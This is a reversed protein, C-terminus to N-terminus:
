GPILCYTLHGDVEVGASLNLVLNAGSSTQFWGIESHESMPALAAAVGANAVLNMPGTIDTSGDVFKANVTGSAVIVYGLVMIRFGTVGTVLTNAGNSSAAIKVYQPSGFAM